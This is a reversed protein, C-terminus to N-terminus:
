FFNKKEEVMQTIIEQGYVPKDRTNVETAHQYSMQGRIIINLPELPLCNM